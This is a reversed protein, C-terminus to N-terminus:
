DPPKGNISEILTNGSEGLQVEFPIPPAEPAFEFAGIDPQGTIIDTSRSNGLIDTDM